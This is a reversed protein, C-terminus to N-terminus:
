LVSLARTVGLVTLWCVADQMGCSLDAGGAKAVCIAPDQATKTVLQAYPSCVMDLVRGLLAVSALAAAHM